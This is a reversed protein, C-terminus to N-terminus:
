YVFKPQFLIFENLNASDIVGILNGNELVPFFSNKQNHILQYVTKLDDTSKITKFSSNMIDKILVNENKANEIIDQYYLLGKIADKEIVVFNNETGSIIIKIADKVTDNPQFTTFNTMLAEKATHGKLIAMHQVIKNEGYAGLFIVLAIFILIPNYLLGILLFLVAIFQGINSAIQTAKVRNMKIALLARLIRGGDMPFAPILNFVVLAINVIYLYFLFNQLTFSSLSEFTETFNLHMLEKVPIIFYLLLAILINVLPGALTVLLEQKPSEPIRELSAMGGIPLLTIKKTEIEFHKATLAHGLEHLIVCVFVALVLAINFLISDKNGGHKLESFIIWIILFIFTWHVKIKIGFVSGLSLNAKM